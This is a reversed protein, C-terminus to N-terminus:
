CLFYFYFHVYHTQNQANVLRVLRVLIFFEFTQDSLIKARFMKSATVGGRQQLIMVMKEERSEGFRNFM